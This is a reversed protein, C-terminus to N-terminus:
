QDTGLEKGASKNWQALALLGDRRASVVSREFNVRDTVILTWDEYSMLGSTYRIDAEDNRQRASALFTEQVKINDIADALNAWSNELDTRTQNRASRLNQEAAERARRASSIANFTATPGNGFIPYDLSGTATWSPTQPFWAPGFNSRSYSASLTPWLNSQAQSVAADATALRAEALAVNPNLEILRAIVEHPPLQDAGLEWTGTAVIIKSEDWGLQQSFDQRGSVITRQAQALDAQAQLQEANARMMNGKSERGSQYRLTVMRANNDRLSKITESVGQQAQAYLLAVFASRLSFLLDNATQRLAAQAQDLSARAGSISAYRSMNFLDLTASGAIDWSSTTPGNDTKSRSHDAGLNVRPLVGNWTQKLSDQSAALSKMGAALDPNQQAAMNVADPWTLAHADEARAASACALSFFLTLLTRRM